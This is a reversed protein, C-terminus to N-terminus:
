ASCITTGNGDRRRWRKGFFRRLRRHVQSLDMQRRHRRIRALREHDGSAADAAGFAPVIHRQPLHLAQLAPALLSRLAPSPQLIGLLPGFAIRLALHAVLPVFGGPLHHVEALLFAHLRHIDAVRIAHPVLIRTPMVVLPHRAPLIAFIDVVQLLFTCLGVQRAERATLPSGAARTRRTPFALLWRTTIPGAPVTAKTAVAIDHSAHIHVGDGKTGPDPVRSRERISPGTGHPYPRPIFVRPRDCSGSRRLGGPCPGTPPAVRECWRQRPAGLTEAVLAAPRKPPHDRVQPLRGSARGRRPSPTDRCQQQTDIQIYNM